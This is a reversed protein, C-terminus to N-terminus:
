DESGSLDVDIAADTGLIWQEGDDALETDLDWGVFVRTTNNEDVFFSEGFTIGESPLGLDEAIQLDYETGDVVIWSDAVILRLTDYAGEYTDAKAIQATEGTRLALLDIDDRQQSISIWGESEHNVQVDEFRIWVGEVSSNVEGDGGAALSDGGLEVVLEGQAAGDPIDDASKVDSSCAVLSLAGLSAISLTRTMIAEMEASRERESM